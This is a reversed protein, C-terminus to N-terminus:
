KLKSGCQTCYKKNIDQKAGCETCYKFKGGINTKYESIAKTPLTTRRKKWFVYGCVCVIGIGVLIALISPEGLLSIQGTIPQGGTIQPAEQKQEICSSKCEGVILDGTHCCQLGSPCSQPKYNGGAECCKGIPCEVLTIRPLCRGQDENYYENVTCDSPCQLVNRTQKVCTGIYNGWKKTTDCYWGIMQKNQCIGYGFTQQCDLDSNCPRTEECKWTEPNCTLKGSPDLTLCDSPFCCEINQRFISTPIAYCTGTSSIVQNVNYIKRNGFSGGCWYANNQKDYTLSIDAIGTQWDKVFVYTDGIKWNTPTNALNSYTASPKTEIMGTLPNLYSSVDPQGTYRDIVQQISCGQTGPIPSTPLTGAWGEYLMILLQQITVKSTSLVHYNVLVQTCHADIRITDGRTFTIPFDGGGFIGKSTVFEGNKYVTWVPAQLNGCDIKIDNASSIECNSVCTFSASCSNGSCSFTITPYEYSSTSQCMIVGYRPIAIQCSTQSQAFVITPLFLLMFFFIMNKYM